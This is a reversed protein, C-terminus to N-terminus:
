SLTMSTSKSIPLHRQGRKRPSTPGNGIRHTMKQPSDTSEDEPISEALTELPHPPPNPNATSLQWHGKSNSNRHIHLLFGLIRHIGHPYLSPIRCSTGRRVNGKSNPIHHPPFIRRPGMHAHLRRCSRGKMPLNPRTIARCGFYM